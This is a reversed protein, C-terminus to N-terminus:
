KSQLFVCTEQLGPVGMVFECLHNLGNEDPTHKGVQMITVTSQAKNRRIHCSFCVKLFAQAPIAQNAYWGVNLPCM